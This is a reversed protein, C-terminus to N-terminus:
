SPEGSRAAWVGWPATAWASPITLSLPRVTASRADPWAARRPSTRRHRSQPLGRDLSPTHEKGRHGALASHSKTASRRRM